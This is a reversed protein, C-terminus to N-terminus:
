TVAVKFTTSTATPQSVFECTILTQGASFDAPISPVCASLDAADWGAAVKAGTQDGNFKIKASAIKSGDSSLTYSVDTATAGTIQTTDYGVTKATQPLGSSATFATGGAVVAGLVALGAAIRSTTRSM